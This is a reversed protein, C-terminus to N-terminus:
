RVSTNSCYSIKEYQGQRIKRILRNKMLEKLYNMVSRECVKMQRGAEIAEATGFATGLLSLLEKAPEDCIDNAIFERIRQLSDEFYDNLRIAGKVSRVDVYQLHSEGCAYRLVQLLLALRVVHTNHKMRRSEGETENDSENSADILSNQWDYLCVKAERDFRLLHPTKEGSQKDTQYDLAFIKDLIDAWKSGNTNEKPLDDDEIVWRAIKQSRPLVFLIRDLLGNEEYGKKLLERIRKTQTTGIINICPNEIHVPIPNGVRTVDLPSGSWASLLQEILQGNSYRNASNFMGMIEDVLIVVSRQNNNHVQMLVEPTFDSLITRSLVPEEQGSDKGAAKYAEWASKFKKYQECDHRRVPRYAAELPPTKGLGPRGVLIIYLAANTEWESKVRIRYTDGLAASVASLMAVATYEVKFNNRRLMDLVIAQVKQPLVDLPFGTDAIHEAEMRLRNCLELATTEM